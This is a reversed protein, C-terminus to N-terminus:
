IHKFTEELIINRLSQVEYVQEELLERVEREDLNSAEQYYRYLRGQWLHYLTNLLAKRVLYRPTKIFLKYAEILIIAWESGNLGNNNTLAKELIKM